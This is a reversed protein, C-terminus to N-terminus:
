REKVQEPNMRKSERDFFKQVPKRFKFDPDTLDRLAKELLVKKNQKRTELEKRFFAIRKQAKQIEEESHDLFMETRQFNKEMQMDLHEQM